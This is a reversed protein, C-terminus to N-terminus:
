FLAAVPAPLWREGRCRVRRGDALLAPLAVLPEPGDTLDLLVDGPPPVAAARWWPLAGALPAEGIVARLVGPGPRRVAVGLAALADTVADALAGGTLAVGAPAPEVRVATHKLEPQFSVPDLVRITLANTWGAPQLLPGLHFSVFATGPPMAPDVAVTARLSGRASTVLALAGDRVGARRADAPHLRLVPAQDGRLAAVRDTRTLTHWRNRERGTLLRLPFDASPRDAPERFAVAVLRPRGDSTHCRGDEYRRARSPGGAPCPWQRPGERHLVAHSLATMDLDRGATLGVHEDFVEAASPWALAAGGGLARGVAAFIEWDPRAEGPPEVARQALAVRRESSTLTGTKEAWGAAPLLVHALEGTDTPHYLEQVVLLDLREMAARVAHGDPLSALPNTCVVWLVRVRREAMAEVLEVATLGRGAPLPGLGWRAEVDARGRVDDWGVHAALETALGGVERGGMANAQGTLSLPGAGPRGIQGTLLHLDILANIKDTGASSQNLGQCWLSLAAPSRAFRRAAARIAAEPVECIAAARAPPMAAAADRFADLGGCARAVAAEDVLSEEFLARAMGLLLAVDTGPRIALHQDAAEATATRRPDVVTWHAGQRDRASRLRGYLIPHTEAMNSGVILVDRAAELDDYCGPPGDAGFARKYAAVTSSMCLRSNTDVNATKILGKGLKNAAYYDETLLQGSLYLAVSEPGQEAVARRIAEAVREIARPWSTRRLPHERRARVMPHLLRDGTRTVEMLHSGKACLGGRNTPHDPDGRVGQVRGRQVEILVGCGVGCYPCVSRVTTM